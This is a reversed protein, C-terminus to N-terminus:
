YVAILRTDKFYITSTELPLTVVQNISFTLFQRYLLPMVKQFTQKLRYLAILTFV